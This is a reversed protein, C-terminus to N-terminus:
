NSSIKKLSFLGVCSGRGAAKWGWHRVGCFFGRCSPNIDRVGFFSRPLAFLPAAFFGCHRAASFFGRCCLISTARGLFPRPLVFCHRAAGFPRPLSDGIDRPRLFLCSLLPDIDRAGLFSRSLVFCHRVAWFATSVFDGVRAAEFLSRCCLLFAM